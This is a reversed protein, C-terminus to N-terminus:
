SVALTTLDPLSTIGSLMQPLKAPPVDLALSRLLTLHSLCSWDEAQSVVAKSSSGSAPGTLALSVLYKSAQVLRGLQHPAASTCNRLELESLEQGVLHSDITCSLHCGSLRM